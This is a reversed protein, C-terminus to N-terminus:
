VESGSGVVDEQCLDEAMFEEPRIGSEGYPLTVLIKVNSDGQSMGRLPHKLLQGKM